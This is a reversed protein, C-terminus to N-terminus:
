QVQEVHLSKRPDKDRTALGEFMGVEDAHVTLGRYSEPVTMSGIGALAALSTGIAWSLAAVKEPLAFTDVQSCRMATLWHLFRM